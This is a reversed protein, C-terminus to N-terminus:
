SEQLLEVFVSGDSPKALGPPLKEFLNVPWRQLRKWSLRVDKRLPIQAPDADIIVHIDVIVIVRHGIAEGAGFHFHPKRGPTSIKWLPSRM